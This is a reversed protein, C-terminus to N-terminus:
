PLRVKTVSLFNLYQSLIQLNVVRHYGNFIERKHTRKNAALTIM